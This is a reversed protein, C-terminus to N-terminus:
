STWKKFCIEFYYIFVYIDLLVYMYM